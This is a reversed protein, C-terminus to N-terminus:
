SPCARMSPRWRGTRWPPGSFSQGSHSSPRRLTV